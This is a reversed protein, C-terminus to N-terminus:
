SSNVEIPGIWMLELKHASGGVRHQYYLVHEGVDLEPLPTRGANEPSLELM